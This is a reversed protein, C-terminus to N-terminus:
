RRRPPKQRAGKSQTTRVAGRSNSNESPQDIPVERRDSQLLRQGLFATVVGVIIVAGFWAGPEPAGMIVFLAVIGLMVLLAGLAALQGRRRLSVEDDVIKAELTHRHAQEREAMAVIREAAGPLVVDYNRLERAPPLPGRHSEFYTELVVSAEGEKGPRILPRLEEFAEAAAPKIEAVQKSPEDPKGNM